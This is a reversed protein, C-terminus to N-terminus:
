GQESVDPQRRIVILTTDDALLGSSRQLYQQEWAPRVVERNLRRLRRTIGHPHVVYRPDDWFQSLPGVPEDQGPLCRDPPQHLAEAGDTALMITRVDATSGSWRLQFTLQERLTVDQSESLLGYALYPPANHDYQWQTVTGNIAVLGDGLTFVVTHQPTIVTGVVTFLLYDQILRPRDGGMSRVLQGMQLLVRQRVRELIMPACDRHQLFSLYPRLAALVLRAGIHAGVESYESSGCGDCVVATIATETHEWAFADQNNRGSRNHDHGRVSGGAVDFPLRHSPSREATTTEM